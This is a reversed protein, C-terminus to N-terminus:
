ELITQWKGKPLKGQLINRELKIDKYIVDAIMNGQADFVGYRNDKEVLIYEGLKKIKDYEAELIINGYADAMGFKGQRKLIFTDYIKSIKDYQNKAFVENSSSLLGYYGNLNTKYLDPGVLQFSKYKVPVIANENLDIIGYKKNVKVLLKEPAVEYMEKYNKTSIYRGQGNILYYQKNKYIVFYHGDQAIIHQVDNCRDILVSGDSNFITYYNYVRRGGNSYVYTVTEKLMYHDQCNPFAYENQAVDRQIVYSYHGCSGCHHAYVCNTGLMLSVILLAIVKKM